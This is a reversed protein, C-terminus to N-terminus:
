IKDKAFLILIALGALGLAIALIVLPQSLDSQSVLPALLRLSVM